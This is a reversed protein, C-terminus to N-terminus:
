APPPPAVAARLAESLHLAGPPYPLVVGEREFVTKTLELFHFLRAKEAVPNALWLRLELAVGGAELATVVVQRQRAGIPATRHRGHM